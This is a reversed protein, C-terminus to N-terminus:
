KHLGALHAEIQDLTWSHVFGEPTPPNVAKGKHDLLAFKGYDIAGADFRRSKSLTLGRRAARRRIRNERTKEAVSITVAQKIM